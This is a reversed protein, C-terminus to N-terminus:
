DIKQGPQPMEPPTGDRHWEKPPRSAAIADMERFCIRRLLAIGADSRGLHENERDAIPGQGRLAVYDQSPGLGTGMAEGPLRHHNFLEEYYDAPNFDRHPDDAAAQASKTAPLVSMTTFRATSLDDIPVAWVSTHIWPEREAAFAASVIHNNNPFTWDSIRVNNEARIATQRIGATTEEYHLEPLANTVESGFRGLKGWQHVYSVHVADLSNEVQQFWNCDWVQERAFILNGPVELASKRPLDFAPAPATGMFAFILGCYERLPYGAIKISTPAVQEAPLETCSGTGDYRWGHYMCRIQEGEVWGTHLVTCRHACYGGVLYPDGSEGRFLTLDEGLIRLARACGNQLSDSLAVPHWFQRLLKGMRTGAATKTLLTLRNARVVRHTRGM